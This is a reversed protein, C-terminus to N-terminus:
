YSTFILSKRSRSVCNLHRKPFLPDNSSPLDSSAVRGCQSNNRPRSQLIRRVHHNRNAKHANGCDYTREDLNQVDTTTLFAYRMGKCTVAQIAIDKILSLSNGSNSMLRLLPFPPMVHCDSQLCNAKGVFGTTSSTLRLRTSRQCEYWLRCADGPSQERDWCRKQDLDLEWGKRQLLISPNGKPATPHPLAEELCVRDWM